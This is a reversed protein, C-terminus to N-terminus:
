SLNVTIADNYTGTAGTNKYTCDKLVNIVAGNNGLLEVKWRLDDGDDITMSLAHNEQSPVAPAAMPWDCNKPAPAELILGSQASVLKWRAAASGTLTYRLKQGATVNLQVVLVNPDCKKTIPM